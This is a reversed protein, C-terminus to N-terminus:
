WIRCLTSSAIEDMKVDNSSKVIFSFTKLALWNSADCIGDSNPTELFRFDLKVFLKAM